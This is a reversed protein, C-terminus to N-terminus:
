IESIETNQLMKFCKTTKKASQRECDRSRKAIFHLTEAAFIWAMAMMKALRALCLFTLDCFGAPRCLWADFLVFAGAPSFAYSGDRVLVIIDVSECSRADLTEQNEGREKGARRGKRMGGRQAIM